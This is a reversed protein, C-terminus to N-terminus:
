FSDERKGGSESPMEFVAQVSRIPYGEEDKDRLREEARKVLAETGEFAAIQLDRIERMAEDDVRGGFRSLVLYEPQRDFTKARIAQTVDELVMYGIQQCIQKRQARSMAAWESAHIVPMDMLYLPPSDDKMFQKVVRSALLERLHAEIVTTPLELERAVEEASAPRELRFLTYLILAQERRPEPARRPAGPIEEGNAAACAAEAGLVPALTLYACLPALAPLSQPGGERTRQYALSYIAGTVAEVAFVPLEPAMQQGEELILALPRLARDRRELAAPGVTYVDVLLLHAMAPRSAMFDFLAVYAARMGAAWDPAQQFAPLLAAVAQAGASDIAAMLADRKGEFNAYFTTPSMSACKVVEQITTEEYGREAVVVAFARLAREARDDGALIEPAPSPPRTPLRLTRPPARYSLLFDILPGALEVLEAEKGRRLRNRVIEIGSGVLAGIMEPSMASRAPLEAARAQVALVLTAFAEEMTERARPGATYADLFAVRAAAPREAVARAFNEFRRRAREAVDAEGPDAREVALAILEELLAVFCDEKNAFHAYFDGRSVGALEALDNVRTAAYGRSDVSAVMAEFLRGREGSAVGEASRSVIGRVGPLPVVM